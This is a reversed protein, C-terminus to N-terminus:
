TIHRKEQVKLIKEKDETKLLKFVIHGPKQKTKTTKILEQHERELIGIIHINLQEINNWLNQINPRKERERKEMLTESHIIKIPRDKIESTREMTIFVRSILKDIVNKVQKVNRANKNSQKRYNENKKNFNMM